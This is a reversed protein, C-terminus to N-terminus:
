DKKVKNDQSINVKLTRIIGESLLKALGKKYHLEGTRDIDKTVMLRNIGDEHDKLFTNMEAGFLTKEKFITPEEEIAIIAGNKYVALLTNHFYQWLEPKKDNWKFAAIDGVYKDGPYQGGKTGISILWDKGNVNIVKGSTYRMFGVRPSDPNDDAAIILHVEEPLEVKIAQKDSKIVNNYVEALLEAGTLKKM